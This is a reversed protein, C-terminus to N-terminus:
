IPGVWGLDMAEFKPAVKPAKSAAKAAKEYRCRHTFHPHHSHSILQWIRDCSQYGCAFSLEGGRCGAGIGSGNGGVVNGALEGGWLLASGTQVDAAV